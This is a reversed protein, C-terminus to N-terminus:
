LYLKAEVTALTGQKTFDVYFTSTEIEITIDIDPNDRLFKNIVSLIKDELQIKEKLLETITKEQM